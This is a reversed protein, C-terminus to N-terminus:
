TISNEVTQYEPPITLLPEPEIIPPVYVSKKKVKEIDAKTLPAMKQLTTPPAVTFSSKKNAAQKKLVARKRLPVYQEHSLRPHVQIPHFAFSKQEFPTTM